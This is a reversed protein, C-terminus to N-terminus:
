LIHELCPSLSRLMLFVANIVLTVIVCHNMFCNNVVIVLVGEMIDHRMFKSIM